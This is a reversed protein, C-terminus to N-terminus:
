PFIEMFPGSFTDWFVLGLARLQVGQVQVSQYFVTTLLLGKCTPLEEEM